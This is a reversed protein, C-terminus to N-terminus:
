IYLYLKCIFPISFFKRHNSPTLLLEAVTSQSFIRTNSVTVFHRLEYCVYLGRQSVHVLVMLVVMVSAHVVRCCWGCWRATGGLRARWVVNFEVFM